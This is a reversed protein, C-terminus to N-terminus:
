RSLEYDERYAEGQKVDYFERCPKGDLYKWQTCLTPTVKIVVQTKGKWYMEFSKPQKAKYLKSLETNQPGSPHGLIEAMGEIQLNDLCLAVHPNKQIQEVKLFNKDTGFIIELDKSAYSMARATVRHGACTALVLHRSKELLAIIESKKEEANLIIKQM